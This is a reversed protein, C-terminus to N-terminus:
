FWEACFKGGIWCIILAVVAITTRFLLLNPFESTSYALYVRVLSFDGFRIGGLCGGGYFAEVEVPVALAHQCLHPFKTSARAVWFSWWIEEM